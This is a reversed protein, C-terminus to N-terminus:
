VVNGERFSVNCRFIPPQFIFKKRNPAFFLRNDLHKAVGHQADEGHAGTQAQSGKKLGGGFTCLQVNTPDYWSSPSEFLFGVREGMMMSTYAILKRENLTIKWQVMIIPSLPLLTFHYKGDGM